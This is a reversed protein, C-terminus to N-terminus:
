SKEKGDMLDGFTPSDASKGEVEADDGFSVVEARGVAAATEIGERKM